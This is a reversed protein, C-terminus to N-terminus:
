RPLPRIFYRGPASFPIRTTYVSQHPPPSSAIRHSPHSSQRAKARARAAPVIAEVDVDPVARGAGQWCRFSAAHNASQHVASM